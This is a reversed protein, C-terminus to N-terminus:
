QSHQKNRLSGTRNPVNNIIDIKPAKDLESMKVKKDLLDTVAIGGKQIFAFPKKSIKLITKGVLLNDELHSYAM